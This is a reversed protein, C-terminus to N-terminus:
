RISLTYTRNQNTGREVSLNLAARDLGKISHCPSRSPVRVRRLRNVFSVGSAGGAMCIEALNASALFGLIDNWLISSYTGCPIIAVYNDRALTMM